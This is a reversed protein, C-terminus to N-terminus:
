FEVTNIKSALKLARYNLSFLASVLMNLMTMKLDGTKIFGM